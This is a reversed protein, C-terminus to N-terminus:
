FDRLLDSYGQCELNLLDMLNIKNQPSRIHYKLDHLLTLSIIYVYNTTTKLQHRSIVIKLSFVITNQLCRYSTSTRVLTYLLEPVCMSRPCTM